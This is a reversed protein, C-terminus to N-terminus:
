QEAVGSARVMNAVMTTVSAVLAAGALPEYWIISAPRM